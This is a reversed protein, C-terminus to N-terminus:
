LLSNWLYMIIGEVDGNFEAKAVIVPGPYGINSCIWRAGDKKHIVISRGVISHKGFLPLYLDTYMADLNEKDTLLGYKGSLDGIQLTDFSYKYVFLYITPLPYNYACLLVYCDAGVIFYIM